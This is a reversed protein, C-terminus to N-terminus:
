EVTSIVYEGLDLASGSLLQDRYLEYMKIQANSFSSTFRDSDLDNSSFHEFRGKKKDGSSGLSEIHGTDLFLPTQDTLPDHSDLGNDEYDYLFTNIPETPIDSSFKEMRSDKQLSTEDMLLNNFQSMEEPIVKASEERIDEQDQFPNVDSKNSIISSSQNEHHSSYSIKTSSKHKIQTDASVKFLTEVAKMLKENASRLPSVPHLHVTETVNRKEEISTTEIEDENCNIENSKLNKSKSFPTPQLRKATINRVMWIPTKFPFDRAYSTRDTINIGNKDEQRFRDTIEKVDDIHTVPVVDEKWADNNNNFKSYVEIDKKENVSDSIMGPVDTEANTKLSSRSLNYSSSRGYLPNHLSGPPEGNRRSSGYKEEFLSLYKFQAPITDSDYDEYDDSSSDDNYEIEKLIERIQKVKDQFTDYTNHTQSIKNSALHELQASSKISDQNLVAEPLNSAPVTALEKTMEEEIFVNNSFNPHSNRTGSKISRETVLIEDDLTISNSTIKREKSDKNSTERNVNNYRVCKVGLDICKSKNDIVSSARYKSSLKGSRTLSEAKVAGSRGTSEESNVSEEFNQDEISFDKKKDESGIALNMKKANDAAEKVQFLTTSANRPARSIVVRVSSTRSEIQRLRKSHPSKPDTSSKLKVVKMVNVPFNSIEKIMEKPARKEPVNTIHTDNSTLGNPELEISSDFSSSNGTPNENTNKVDVDLEFHTNDPAIRKAETSEKFMSKNENVFFSM